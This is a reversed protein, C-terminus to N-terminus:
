KIFDIAESLTQFKKITPLNSNGFFLKEFMLNMISTSSNYTVILYAKITYRNNFFRIWDKPIISYKYIRNSIYYPQCGKGYIREAIDIVIKAKEWNFLVEEHIESIVLNDFFYFDGFELQHEEILQTYIHHDKVKM